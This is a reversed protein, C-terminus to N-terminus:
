IFTSLLIRWLILNSSTALLKKCFTLREDKENYNRTIINWNLPKSTQMYSQVGCLCYYSEATVFVLLVM